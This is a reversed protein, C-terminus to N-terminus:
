NPFEKFLSTNKYILEDIGGFGHKIKADLIFDNQRLLDEIVNVAKRNYMDDNHSELQIYDIRCNLHKQFLGLLCDYEHGETDIKLVNIHKIDKENIFDVLRIVDIETHKVILDEVNKVGLVKAKSKLYKSDPNVTEFTSTEDMINQKFILKGSQSSIGLQYLQIRGNKKYKLKLFDFLDINPEFGIVQAERVIKLFFDITQGKNVGVDMILPNLNQLAKSYYRKLRPYFILNENFNILFQVLKIRISM